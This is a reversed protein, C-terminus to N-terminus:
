RVVGDGALQSAVPAAPDIQAKYSHGVTWEFSESM